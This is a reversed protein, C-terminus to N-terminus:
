LSAPSLAESTEAGSDIPNPIQEFNHTEPGTPTAFRSLRAAPQPILTGALEAQRWAVSMGARGIRRNDRKQSRVRMLESTGNPDERLIPSATPNSLVSQIRDVCENQYGTLDTSCLGHRSYRNWAGMTMRFGRRFAMANIREFLIRNVDYSLLTDTLHGSLEYHHHEHDASLVGEAADWVEATQTADARLEWYFHGFNVSSGSLMIQRPVFKGHAVTDAALHSLYGYAFARGRDDSASELVRLATSWHHCSQKVRSMRKAFVIDAAVNGYLYACGHSALIAAIGAPILALQELISRGLAIHTAPGWALAQDATVLLALAAVVYWIRRSGIM